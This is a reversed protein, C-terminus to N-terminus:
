WRWRRGYWAYPRGYWGRWGYWGRYYPRYGYWYPRGYWGRYGYWYRRPWVQACAYPGCVVAAKEVLGSEVATVVGLSTPMTAHAQLMGASLLAGAGLASLLMKRM